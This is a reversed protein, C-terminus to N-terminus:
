TQNADFVPANQSLQRERARLLEEWLIADALHRSLSLMPYSIAAGRFHVGATIRQEPHLIPDHVPHNHACPKASSSYVITLLKTRTYDRANAAFSNGHPVKDLKHGVFFDSDM